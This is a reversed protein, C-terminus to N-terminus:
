GVRQASLNYLLNYKKEFSSSHNYRFFGGIEPLVDSDKM